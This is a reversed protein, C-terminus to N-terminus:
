KGHEEQRRKLLTRMGGFGLAGGILSMIKAIDVDKGLATLFFYGIIVIAMLWFETTRIGSKM